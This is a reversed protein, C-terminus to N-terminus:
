KKKFTHMRSAMEGLVVEIDVDRANIRYPEKEQSVRKAEGVAIGVLNVAQDYESETLGISKFLRSADDYSLVGNIELLSHSREPNMLLKPLAYIVHERILSIGKGLISNAVDLAELCYSREWGAFCFPRVRCGAMFKSLLLERIEETRFVSVDLHNEYMIELLGAENGYLKPLGGDMGELLFSKMTLQLGEQIDPDELDEPTLFTSITRKITELNVEFRKGKRKDKKSVWAKPINLYDALIRRAIPRLVLIDPAVMGEKFYPDDKEKMLGEFSDLVCPSGALYLPLQSTILSVLRPNKMEENEFDKLYGEKPNSLRALRGEPDSYKFDRIPSVTQPDMSLISDYEM